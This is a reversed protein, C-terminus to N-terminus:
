TGGEAGALIGGATRWLEEDEEEEDGLLLLLLWVAVASAPPPGAQAGTFGRQEGFGYAAEGAWCAPCPRGQCDHLTGCPLGVGGCEVGCCLARWTTCRVRVRRRRNKHPM